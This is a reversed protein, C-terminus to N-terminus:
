DAESGHAGIKTLTVVQHYSLFGLGLRHLLDDTAGLVRSVVPHRYALVNRDFIRMFRMAGVVLELRGIEAELVHLDARTLPHEDDSGLRAVGAHGAIRRRSFNLLPNLAMTELFACRGAPTLIDSLIPAIAAIDVHHLAYRGVIVDFSAPAFTRRTLEGVMFEVPLGLHQALERCREISVPSIDIATVIAGRQALFASTVGTGCAFDLARRGQLPELADLMARTNPDPGASFMELSRSLDSAHEDWFVAERDTVGDGSM